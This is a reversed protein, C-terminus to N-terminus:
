AKLLTVGIGVYIFVDGIATAIPTQASSVGTKKIFFDLVPTGLLTFHSFGNQAAGPTSLATAPITWGALVTSGPITAAVSGINYTSSPAGSDFASTTTDGTPGTRDVGTFEMGTLNARPSGTAGEAINTTVTVTNNGVTGTATLVWVSMKLYRTETEPDTRTYSQEVSDLMTYAVADGDVVTATAGSDASDTEVYVIITSMAGVTGLVFSGGNDFTGATDSGGSTFRAFGIGEPAQSRNLARNLQVGDGGPRILRTPYRGADPDPIPVTGPPFEGGALLAPSQPDVIVNMHQILFDGAPTTVPLFQSLGCRSGGRGRNALSEFARVNVGTPTTGKPQQGYSTAVNLGAVPFLVETPKEPPM